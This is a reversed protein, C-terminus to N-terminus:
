HTVLTPVPATPEARGRCYRWLHRTVDLGGKGVIGLMITKDLVWNTDRQHPKRYFLWMAEYFDIRKQM